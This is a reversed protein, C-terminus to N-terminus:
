QSGWEFCSRFDADDERSWNNWNYNKRKIHINSNKEKKIQNLVAIQKPTNKGYKEKYRKCSEEFKSM